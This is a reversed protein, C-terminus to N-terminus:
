ENLNRVLRGWAIISMWGFSLTQVISSAPWEFYRKLSTLSALITGLWFRHGDANGVRRGLDNARVSEVVLLGQKGDHPVIPQDIRKKAQGGEAQLVMQAGCHFADPLDLYVLQVDAEVLPATVMYNRHLCFTSLISDADHLRALVYPEGLLFKGTNKAPRNCRLGQSAVPTPLGALPLL